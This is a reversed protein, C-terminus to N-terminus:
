PKMRRIFIEGISGAIAILTIPVWFVIWVWMWRSGWPIPPDLRWDRIVSFSYIGGLPYMVCILIIENVTM